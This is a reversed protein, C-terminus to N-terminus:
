QTKISQREKDWKNEVVFDHLAGRFHSKMLFAFYLFTTNKYYLKYNYLFDKIGYQSKIQAVSRQVVWITSTPSNLLM